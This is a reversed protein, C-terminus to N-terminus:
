CVFELISAKLEEPLSFSSLYMRWVYAMSGRWAVLQSRERHEGETDGDNTSHHAQANGPSVPKSPKWFEKLCPITKLNLRAVPLLVPGSV